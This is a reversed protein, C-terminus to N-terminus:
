VPRRRAPRRSQAATRPMLRRGRHALHDLEAVARIRALLPAPVLVVVDDLRRQERDRVAHAASLGALQCRAEGGTGDPPAFPDAAALAPDDLQNLLRVPADVLARALIRRSGTHPRLYRPRAHLVVRHHEAVDAVRAGIQDAVALELLQGLIM